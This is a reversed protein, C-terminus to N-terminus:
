CGKWVQGSISKVATLYCHKPQQSRYGEVMLWKVSELRWLFVLDLAVQSIIFPFWSLSMHKCVCVCIYALRTFQSGRWLWGGDGSSSGGQTHARAMIKHQSQWPTNVGVCRWKDIICWATQSAGLSSRYREGPINCSVMVRYSSEQMFVQTGIHTHTLLPSTVASDKMMMVVARQFM